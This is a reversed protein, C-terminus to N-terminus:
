DNVFGKCAMRNVDEFFRSWIAVDTYDRFFRKRSKNAIEFALTQNSSFYHVIDICEDVSDFGLIEENLKFVKDLHSKNDCVQLVGFAALDYLRANIPGISNHVNIGIKTDSYLIPIDQDKISGSKWNSGYANINPFSKEITTFFKKKRWFLDSGGIIPIKNLIRFRPVGYKSGVYSLLKERHQFTEYDYNDDVMNDNYHFSGLPWFFVNECGWSRYMPIVTPNSIAHIDYAHVVPKSIVDSSDPDDACHYIKLQKFQRIFEPHILAGGFHIFVDCGLISEGLVEYFKMLKYDRKHWLKDLYPFITYSQYNSMEFTSLNYGLSVASAQRRRHWDHLFTGSNSHALLIKKEKLYDM